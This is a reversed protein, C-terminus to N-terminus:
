SRPVRKRPAVAVSASPCDWSSAHELGREEHDAGELSCVTYTAVSIAVSRPPVSRSLFPCPVSPCELHASLDPREPICPSRALRRDYFKSVPARAM